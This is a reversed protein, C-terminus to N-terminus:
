SGNLAASIYVAFGTSLAYIVNMFTSFFSRNYGLSFFSYNSEYLRIGDSCPFIYYDNADEAVAEVKCALHFEEFDFEM